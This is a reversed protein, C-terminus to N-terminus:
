EFGPIRPGEAGKKREREQFCTPPFFRCLSQCPKASVVYDGKHRKDSIQVNVGVEGSGGSSIKVRFVKGQPSLFLANSQDPSTIERVRAPHVFEFSFQDFYTISKKLEMPLECFLDLFIEGGGTAARGTKEERSFDAADIFSLSLCSLNVM